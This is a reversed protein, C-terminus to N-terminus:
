LNLFILLQEPKFDSSITKSDPCFRNQNSVV